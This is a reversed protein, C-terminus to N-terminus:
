NLVQIDSMERIDLGTPRANFEETTFQGLTMLGLLIVDVVKVSTDDVRKRFQFQLAQQAQIIQQLAFKGDSSTIITNLRIASPLTDEGLQMVVEGAVMFYTQKQKAPTIMGQVNM